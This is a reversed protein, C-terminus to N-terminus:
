GAESSNEHFTPSVVGCRERSGNQHPIRRHDALSLLGGHGGHRRPSDKWWSLRRGAATPARAEDRLPPAQGRTAGGERRPQAQHAEAAQARRVGRRGGRAPARHGGRSEPAPEAVRLGRDAASGRRRPSDRPPRAAPGAARRDADALRAIDWWVEIRTSSTNVHQGGPGGSRTARYELESLPLLLDPTIELPRRGAGPRFTASRVSAKEARENRKEGMVSRSRSRRCRCPSPLTSSPYEPPTSEASSATTPLAPARRRVTGRRSRASGKRDRPGTASARRPRGRSEVHRQELQVGALEVIWAVEAVGGVAAVEALGLQPGAQASTAPRCPKSVTISPVLASSRPSCRGPSAPPDRAPIREGSASSPHLLACTRARGGPLQAKGGPIRRGRRAQRAPHAVAELDGRLPEPLHLLALRKEAREADGAIQADPMVARCALTSTLGSLRSSAGRDRQSTTSRKKSPSPNSSHLQVRSPYRRPRNSERQRRVARRSAATRPRAADGLGAPRSIALSSARSRSGPHGSRSTCSWPRCRVMFNKPSTGGPCARPSRPPPELPPAPCPHTRAGAPRSRPTERIARRGLIM